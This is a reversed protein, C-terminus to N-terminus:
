CGDDTMPYYGDDSGGTAYPAAGSNPLKRIAQWRVKAFQYCEDATPERGLYSAIYTLYAKKSGKEESKTDGLYPVSGILAKATFNTGAGWFQNRGVSAEEYDPGASSGDSAGTLKTHDGIKADKDIVFWDGKFFPKFVPNSTLEHYKAQGREVQTAEDLHAVSYTRATSYTIYQVVSAVSLTLSLMMLMTTFGLLITIAIIFDLTILGRQNLKKM